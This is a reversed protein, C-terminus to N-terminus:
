KKRIAKSSLHEWHDKSFFSVFMSDNDIKVGLFTGIGQGKQPSGDSWIDIGKWKYHKMGHDHGHFIGIINKNKIVEYLNEREKETWWLLSFGEFGYHFFLIIPQNVSKLNSSLDHKLFTLSREPDRFSDHFYHCWECTSDWEDGPYIGLVVFHIGGKDFSYHLGNESVCCRIVRKSNRFKIGERVAGGINGDHNGFTEYVPIKLKKEGELGFASVFESWQEDTGADTIDGSIFIGFPNMKRDWWCPFPLAKSLNMMQIASDLIMAHQENCNYHLDSAVLFDCSPKSDCCIWLFFILGYLFRKFRSM